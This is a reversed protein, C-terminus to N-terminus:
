GRVGKGKSLINSIQRLQNYNKKCIPKEAPEISKEIRELIFGVVSKWSKSQNKQKIVVHEEAPINHTFRSGCLGYRM